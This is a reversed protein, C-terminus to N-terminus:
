GQCLKMRWLSTNPYPDPTLLTWLSEELFWAIQMYRGRNQFIIKSLFLTSETKNKILVALTLTQEKCRQHSAVSMHMLMVYGVRSERRYWWIKKGDSLDETMCHPQTGRNKERWSARIACGHKLLKYKPLHYSLCIQINSLLWLDLRLVRFFNCFGEKKGRFIGSNWLMTEHSPKEPNKTAYGKLWRLRNSYTQKIIGSFDSAMPLDQEIGATQGVASWLTRRWLASNVSFDEM